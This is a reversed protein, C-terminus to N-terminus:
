ALRPLLRASAGIAAERLGTEVECWRRALVQGMQGAIATLMIHDDWEFKYPMESEVDLVGICDGDAMLPFCAESRMSSDSRVYGPYADVDNVVIGRRSATVHDLVGGKASQLLRNVRRAELLQQDPTMTGPCRHYVQLPSAGDRRLLFACRRYGLHNYLHDIVTHCLRVPDSTTMMVESLHGLAVAKNLEM